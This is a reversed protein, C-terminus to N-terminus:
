EAVELNMDTLEEIFEPKQINELFSNIRELIQAESRHPRDYKDCYYEDVVSKIGDKALAIETYIGKWYIGALENNENPVITLENNLKQLESQFEEITKIM